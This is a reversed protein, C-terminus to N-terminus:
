FHSHSYHTNADLRREETFAQHYGNHTNQYKFSLEGAEPQHQLGHKASKYTYKTKQKPLTHKRHRIHSPFWMQM